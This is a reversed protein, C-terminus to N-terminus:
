GALANMLCAWWARVQPQGMWLYRCFADIVTALALAVVGIALMNGRRHAAEEDQTRHRYEGM